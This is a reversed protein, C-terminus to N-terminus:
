FCPVNETRMVMNCTSYISAAAAQVAWESESTDPNKLKWLEAMPGLLPADSTMHKLGKDCNLQMEQVQKLRNELHKGEEQLARDMQVFLSKWRAAHAESVAKDTCGSESTNAISSENEQNSSFETSILYPLETHLANRVRKRSRKLAALRGRIDQHLLELWQSAVSAAKVSLLTMYDHNSALDDASTSCTRDSSAAAASSLQLKLSDGDQPLFQSTTPLTQHFMANNDKMMFHCKMFGGGYNHDQIRESVEKGRESTRSTCAPQNENELRESHVMAKIISYVQKSNRVHNIIGPNLGSLLGSPAAVKVFKNAQGHQTSTNKKFEDDRKRKPPRGRPRPVVAKGHSSSLFGNQKMERWKRHSESEETAGTTSGCESPDSVKSQGLKKYPFFPNLEAADSSDVTNLDLGLHASSMRNEGHEADPKSQLDTGINEKGCSLPDSGHLKEVSAANSDRGLTLCPAETQLAGALPLLSVRDGCQKAGDATFQPIDKNCPHLCAESQGSSEPIGARLDGLGAVVPRPASGEAAGGGPAGSGDFEQVSVCPFTTLADGAM